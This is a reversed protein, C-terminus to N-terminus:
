EMAISISKLSCNLINYFQTLTIIKRLGPELHNMRLRGRLNSLWTNLNGTNALLLTQLKGSKWTCIIKPNKATELQLDVRRIIYPESIQTNRFIKAKLFNSFKGRLSIKDNIKFRSFISERTMKLALEQRFIDYSMKMSTSLSQGQWSRFDNSSLTQFLNIGHGKLTLYICNDLHIQAYSYM